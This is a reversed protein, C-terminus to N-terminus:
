KSEEKKKIWRLRDKIILCRLCTVNRWVYSETENTTFFDSLGCRTRRGSIVNNDAKSVKHIKM